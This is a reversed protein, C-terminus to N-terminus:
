ILVKPDYFLLIIAAAYMKQAFFHKPPFWRFYDFFSSSGYTTPADAMKKGEIEWTKKFCVIKQDFFFDYFSLLTDLLYLCFHRGALSTGMDVLCLSNNYFPTIDVFIGAGILLSTNHIVQCRSFQCNFWCILCFM